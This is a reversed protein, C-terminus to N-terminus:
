PEVGVRTPAQTDSRSQLLERRQAVQDRYPTLDGGTAVIVQSAEARSLGQQIELVDVALSLDSHQIPPTAYPLSAGTTTSAATGYVEAQVEAAVERSLRRIDEATITENV